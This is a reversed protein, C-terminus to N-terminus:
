EDIGIERWPCVLISRISRISDNGETLLHNDLLNVLSEVSPKEPSVLTLYHPFNSRLEGKVESAWVVGSVELPQV